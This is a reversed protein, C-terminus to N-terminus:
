PSIGGAAIALRDLLIATGPVRTGTLLRQRSVAPALAEGAVSSENFITAM